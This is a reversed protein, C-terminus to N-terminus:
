FSIHSVTLTLKALGKLSDRELELINREREADFIIGNQRKLEKHNIIDTYIVCLLTSMQEVKLASMM